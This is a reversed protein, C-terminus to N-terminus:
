HDDRLVEDSLGIARAWLLTLTEVARSRDFQEGEVFWTYAFSSVMGTLAHAAYAADLDASAIGREQLRRISQETRMLFPNRSDHLLSAMEANRTAAESWVHMLTAHREYALLYSGTSARIRALPSHALGADEQGETSLLDPFAELVMHRLLEEKSSFYNYFTARSVGAREAIDGVQAPHFGAEEFVTIAAESLLKVTRFARTGSIRTTVTTAVDVKEVNM